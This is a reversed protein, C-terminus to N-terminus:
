LPGSLSRHTFHRVFYGTKFEIIEVGVEGLEQFWPDFAQSVKTFEEFARRVLRGGQQRKVFEGLVRLFSQRFAQDLQDSEANGCFDSVIILPVLVLSQADTETEATFPHRCDLGEVGVPCPISIEM